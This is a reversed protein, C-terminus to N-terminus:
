NKIQGANYQEDDLLLSPLLSPGDIPLQCHSCSLRLGADWPSWHHRHNHHHHCHKSGTGRRLVIAAGAHHHREGRAQIVDGAFRRDGLEGAAGRESADDLGVGPAEAHDQIAARRGEADGDVM